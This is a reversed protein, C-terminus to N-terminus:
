LGTVKERKPKTNFSSTKRFVPEVPEGLLYNKVDKKNVAEKLIPLVDRYAKLTYDVDEDSHSFSMNHFGSWLIGRKIMEQQVLSKMELPNQGSKVQDFTIISRCDYGTCKSYDIKLENVVQNYGDKLKKGQMALYAPVNQDRIENITAKAAALSLAEGGFTTFFFVDKELLNMIERKGTLISLPMGNALAKSFCALDADVKFYEQAGGLAIRFGTWMEDFILLAGYEDCVERLKHLFNDVPEEFVYPELIVCATDSDISDIVSQIDNYNFTFTLDQVTQPIGKNRDTVSIYWDHWGHYGCCLVKERGTYARALRVAASTVDAGTKSYRVSEANPIVENILEAVDVELPHMLSFTIGDKLQTKIAEDVKDYAYGLSLPGIGMNYDLYENGDADWVHSGKGKVLYKPAIGKIHQSPGKALTQTVSPILEVAKNYLRNSIKIDPYNENFKVSNPM